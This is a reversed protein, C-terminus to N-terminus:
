AWRASRPAAVLQHGERILRGREVASGPADRVPVKKGAEVTVTRTATHQEGLAVAQMAPVTVEVQEGGSEGVALIEYLTGGARLVALRGVHEGLREVEVQEYADSM